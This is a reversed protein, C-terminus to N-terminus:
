NDLKLLTTNSVVLNSHYDYFIKNDKLANFYYFISDGLISSFKSAGDSNLHLNDKFLKHNAFEINHSFDICHICESKCFVILSDVIKEDSRTVKFIPSVVVWLNVESNKCMKSINELNENQRAAIEIEQRREQVEILNTDIIGSVPIYGNQSVDPHYVLGLLLPYLLSNYPYISSSYKFREFLSTQDLISRILSDQKYYPKLIRLGPDLDNQLLMDPYVDLIILQPRTNELIKSVEIFSYTLFQGGLGSNYATLGTAVFISDPIYHQQARSSGVIIIDEDAEYFSYRLKYITIDTSSQYLNDLIKGLCKDLVVVFILILIVEFLRKKISKM